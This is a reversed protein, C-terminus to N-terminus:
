NKLKMKELFFKMKLIYKYNLIYLLKIIKICSKTFQIMHIKIM